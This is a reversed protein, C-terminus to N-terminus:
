ARRGRLAPAAPAARQRRKSAGRGALIVASACAAAAALPFAVLRPSGAFLAVGALPADRWVARSATRAGAVRLSIRGVATVILSWANVLVCRTACAGSEAAARFEASHPVLKRRDSSLCCRRVGGAVGRRISAGAGFPALSRRSAALADRRSCSLPASLITLGFPVAVLVACAGSSRLRCREDRRAAVVVSAGIVCSRWSPPWITARTLMHGAASAALAGVVLYDLLLASAAAMRRRKGFAQRPPATPAAPFFCRAAKSISPASRSGLWSPRWSFGRRRRASLRRGRRAAFVGVAGLEVLALVTADSMWPALRAPAPAAVHSM